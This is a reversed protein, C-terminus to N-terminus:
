NSNIRSCKILILKENALTTAFLHIEGGEELRIKKRLDIVSLPFNRVTVSAKTMGSLFKRLEKKNFFTSGITQFVRGPFDPFLQDSTYLHSDPHFKLLPYVDTLGKYFGAKLLSTNPEYLYSGVESTYTIQKAKEQSLLFSLEPQSNKKSLNVCTILPGSANVKKKLLFLLEKCENEVSVVYVEATNRLQRLVSSIDLMPSLKILVTAAKELLLDQIKLLDPESDEIRVIRKGFNSRRSPDIYIVDVPPTKKLYHIADTHVVTGSKLGLTNFNWAAVESLEGQKEVYFSQQFKPSIFAFDVGFGGTLDIFTTGSLLGAKYRATQESSCQELAIRHPYIIEDSQFWSPIKHEANQRGQIQTLAWTFDSPTLSQLISPSLSQLALKRVDDFRHERIFGMTAESRMKLLLENLM